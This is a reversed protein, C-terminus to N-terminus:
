ALVDVGRSSATRHPSRAPRDPVTDQTWPRPRSESWGPRAWPPQGQGQGMGHGGGASHQSTWSGGTDRSVDLRSPDLGAAQLDRRLDPLANLLAARGEDHAGRLTLDLSGQSVTVQIQVPGLNEPSLVVTMSHTGDPGRSLTVVHQGLQAAVPPPAQAATGAPATAPTAPAVPAAPAATPAQAAPTVADAAVPAPDSSRGDHDGTSSSSGGATGGTVVPGAVQAAAPIGDAAAPAAPTEPTRANTAATTAAPASPLASSLPPLQVTPGTVVGTATTTPAAVVVLEGLAANGTSTV